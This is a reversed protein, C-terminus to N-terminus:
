EEWRLVGFQIDVSECEGRLFDLVEAYDRNFNELRIAIDEPTIAAYGGDDNWRFLSDKGSNGCVIFGNEVTVNPSQMVDEWKDGILHYYSPHRMVSTDVRRIEEGCRPCYKSRSSHGNKCYFGFDPIKRPATKCVAYAGVFVYNDLGM